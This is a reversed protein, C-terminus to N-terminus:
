KEQAEDSEIRKNILAPSNDQFEPQPKLPPLTAVRLADEQDRPFTAATFCAEKLTFDASFRRAVSEIVLDPVCDDM